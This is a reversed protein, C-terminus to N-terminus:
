ALVCSVPQSPWLLVSLPLDIMLVAYQETLHKVDDFSLTVMVCAILDRM